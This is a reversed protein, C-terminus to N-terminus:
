RCTWLFANTHSNNNLEQLLISLIGIELMEDRYSASDGAINGLAWIAQERVELSSNTKLIHIIKPICGLSVLYESPGTVINTIAWLLEFTLKSLNIPTTNLKSIHEENLLYVLHKVIGCDIFKTISVIISNASSHSILLHFLLSSM